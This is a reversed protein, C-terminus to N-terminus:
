GGYIVIRRTALSWLYRSVGLMVAAWVLQRGLLSLMDTGAVRGTYVSLPIYALSQFPLLTAVTQLWHPFFEFPIVTGALLGVVATKAIQLGQANTTWFSLMMVISNISYAVLFAVLLAFIYGFAASGGAPPDIGLAFVFLLLCPINVWLMEVAFFGAAELFRRWGFGIPRILDLALDGSRLRTSLGYVPARDAPSWRAFNVAQGIMIYTILQNWPMTEDASHAYIAKWLMYYLSSFMLTAFLTMFFDFRYQMRERVAIRAIGLLSYLSQM